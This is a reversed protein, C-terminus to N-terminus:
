RTAARYQELVAASLRGRASVPVSNSEAWARVAKHDVAVSGETASASGRPSPRASRAPVHGSRGTRRAAGLFPAVADRMKAANGDNLDIEYTVGDLAFLITEDADGGDIDDELLTITRRAM